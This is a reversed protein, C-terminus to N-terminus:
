STKRRKIVIYSPMNFDYSVILGYSQEALERQFHVISKSLMTALYDIYAMFPVIKELM